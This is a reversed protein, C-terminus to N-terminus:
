AIKKAVVVTIDDYQERRGFRAVQDVIVKAILPASLFRSSRLTDMLREEGFEEGSDDFAEIVGDTYLVLVDGAQMSVASVTCDWQEFLGVVTNAAQLKEVNDGHLLL